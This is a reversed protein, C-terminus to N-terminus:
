AQNLEKDSNHALRPRRVTERVITRAYGGLVAIRGLFAGRRCGMKSTDAGYIKRVPREEVRLRGRYGAFIMELECEYRDGRFKLVEAAAPTLARFGSYPDSVSIGLVCHIVAVTLSRVLYRNFPASGRSTKALYRSGVVVDASGGLIPGVLCDIAEPDHQGDSDMLVIADCPSDRLWELGARMAAGKGRNDEFRIVVCGFSHAVDSTGDTSGDDVVLVEVDHGRLTSPMTALLSRIPREENYAALVVSIMVIVM